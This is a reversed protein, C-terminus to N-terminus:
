LGLVDAMTYRGATRGVLWRAAALAGRAFVGRDSARHTLELREGEGGFLVTHEGVVDGSRLSAFGISGARRAGPQAGRDFVALDALRAGRAAALAEGLALATGSPADRKGRHHTELIEVDFGAGLLRDACAALRALVAVALSTNAAHILAIHAAAGEIARLTAAELGTTGILLPIRRELCAAIHEELGGRSFDVAVAAGELARRPDATVRIGTAPGSQAADAGLAASAPSALAGSLVLPDADQQAALARVLSQGMRGTVGFIAVGSM